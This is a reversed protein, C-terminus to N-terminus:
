HGRELTGTVTALRRRAEGLSREVEFLERAIWEDDTGAAAEALATLRTALEDLATRISSLQPGPASSTM